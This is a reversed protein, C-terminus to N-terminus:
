DCDGSTGEIPLACISMSPMDVPIPSPQTPNTEQAYAILQQVFSYNIGGSYSRGPLTFKSTNYGLPVRRVGDSDKTFASSTYAIRWEDPCMVARDDAGDGDFDALSPRCEFIGWIERGQPFPEDLLMWDDSVAWTGSNKLSLGNGDSYVLPIYHNGGFIRAYHNLEAIDTTPDSAHYIVLKGEESLGDPIKYAIYNHQTVLRAYQGPATLYAWGPAATLRAPSLYQFNQEFTGYDERDPGGFDIRWYGDSCAIAIDMWGDGDYDGPAPRSYNSDWPDMELADVWESSYNIEWDWGDWIGTGLLNGNTFTIYWRGHEKDYVAFDERGDSNFDEVYPWVWRSAIPTYNLVLDWAGYNDGGSGISSLDVKWQGNTWSVLDARRDGDFDLTDAIRTGPIFLADDPCSPDSAVPDYDVCILGLGQGRLTIMQAVTLRTGSALAPYASRVSTWFTDVTAIARDIRPQTGVNGGTGSQAVGTTTLIERMKLPMLYKKDGMVNKAYSQVLAAAGAIMPSSASTGSFQNTYYTNPDDNAPNPGGPITTWYFPGSSDGWPYATTAVGLGWAYADVAIGYNSWSAKVHSSGESAGVLISGSDHDYLTMQYPFYAGADGLDVSGNGAASIVTMGCATAYEISAFDDPETEIPMCGYSSSGSCGSPDLRGPLAFMQVIISGPPQRGHGGFLGDCVRELGRVSASGSENTKLDVDPAFGTTGHGNDRAAIIGAVATGHAIDLDSCGSGPFSCPSVTSSSFDIDEHGFNWGWEIDMVIVGAGRAGASWAAQANLGGHTENSYLYGQIGTLDPVTTISSLRSKRKPYVKDVGPTNELDRMVAVAQDPDAVEVHYILNFDALKKGSLAELYRRREDMQEPSISISRKIQISPHKAALDQLITPIVINDTQGEVPEPRVSKVADNRVSKVTDNARTSENLHVVLYGAYGETYILEELSSLEGINQAPTIEDVPNPGGGSGGCGFFLFACAIVFSVMAARKVTMALGRLPRPLGTLNSRKARLSKRMFDGGKRPTPLFTASNVWRMLSM